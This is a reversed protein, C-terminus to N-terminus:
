VHVCRVISCTHLKVLRILETCCHNSPCVHTALQAALVEHMCMHLNCISHHTLHQCHGCYVVYAPVVLYLYCHFQVCLFFWFWVCMCSVCIYSLAVMSQLILHHMYLLRQNVHELKKNGMNRFNLNHSCSFLSM